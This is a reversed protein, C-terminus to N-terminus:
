TGSCTCTPCGPHVSPVDDREDELKRVKEWTVEESTSTVHRRDTRGDPLPGMTVRGHWYGDAGRYVTSTGNARRGKRFPRYRDATPVGPPSVTVNDEGHQDLWYVVQVPYDGDAMILGVYERDDIEVILAWGPPLSFQAEERASSAIRVNAM